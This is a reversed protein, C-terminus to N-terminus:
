RPDAIQTIWNSLDRIEESCVSHAMAYIHWDIAYNLKELRDKSLKAFDIDIVTDSTGHALFIPITENIATKEMEVLDALPLYTSLAIIGALKQPYRLGTHLALAGGQSFGAIFIRESPIGESIQKAILHHVLLESKRIGDTDQNSNRDLGLIDYWARMRLGNNLTIAQVPAHPFIFRIAFTPSFEFTPVIPVFDRGDAGLGHLWIIAHTPNDNTEVIIAAENNDSM